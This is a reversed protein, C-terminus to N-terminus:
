LSVFRQKMQDKSVGLTCNFSMQDLGQLEAYWCCEEKEPFFISFKGKHAHIVSYMDHVIDAKDVCSIDTSLSKRVYM